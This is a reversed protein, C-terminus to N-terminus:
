PKSWYEYRWVTQFGARRYLAQAAENGQEVQLFIRELGRRRAQEAIARLIQGAFGRGRSSCETRMGHVSAWGHSFAAAGAALTRGGERLGAFLTGTARSLSTVRSAGDVPDFGEGLFLAAWAEDPTEALTATSGNAVALVADTAAIQVHTPRGAAYGLAGLERKLRDFCPQDPLRFTTPLGQALYRQEIDHRIGDVAAVHHLPVASKARGITGSDFPLLWGDIVLLEQPAVAAITAREITEVDDAHLTLSQMGPM